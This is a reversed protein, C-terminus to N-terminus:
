LRGSRWRARLDLGHAAGAASLAALIWPWAAEAVAAHLALMLCAGALLNLAYGGPRRRALLVAVEIGIVAVAADVALLVFAPQAASM